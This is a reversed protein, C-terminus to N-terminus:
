NVAPSLLGTGTRVYCSACVRLRSTLGSMLISSHAEEIARKQTADGGAAKLKNKYARNIADSDAASSVGLM